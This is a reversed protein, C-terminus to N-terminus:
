YFQNFWKNMTQHLWYAHQESITIYNTLKSHEEGLVHAGVDEWNETHGVQITDTHVMQEVSAYM